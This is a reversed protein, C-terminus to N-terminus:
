SPVGYHRLCAPRLGHWAGFAGTSVCRGLHGRWTLFACPAAAFFRLRCLSFPFLGAGTTHRCRCAPTAQVSSSRLLLRLLPSAPSAALNFLWRAPWVGACWRRTQRCCVFVNLWDYAQGAHRKHQRLSYLGAFTLRLHRFACRRQALSAARAAACAHYAYFISRIVLLWPLLGNSDAASTFPSRCPLLILADSSLM